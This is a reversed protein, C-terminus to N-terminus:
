IRLHVYRPLMIRDTGGALLLLVMTAFLCNQCEFACAERTCFKKQLSVIKIEGDKPSLPLTRNM